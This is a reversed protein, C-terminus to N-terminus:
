KSMLLIEPKKAKSPTNANSAANAMAAEKAALRSRKDLQILSRTALIAQPVIDHVARAYLCRVAFAASDRVEQPNLPALLCHGLIRLVIQLLEWPLPIRVGRSVGDESSFDDRIKLKSIHEVTGNVENSEDDESDREFSNGNEGFCINGNENLNGFENSDNDFEHRCSCDKGSWDASFQCLELKSWSPMQSIQKYYCDLAVSVICARKTSKVAIQPELPACLVGVSSVGGDNVGRNVTGNSKNSNRPTSDYLSPQSLDPISILCPKGARAKTEAAYISLLVAEFGSLSSQNNHTSSALSIIRSLYFGSLLPIFSLVVLRLDPDSSQYTEYLWQCLSDNGSGSNPNSLLNSITLYSESSELLSRAPRDSDALSSIFSSSTTSSASIISSLIHIRTRAKSISEWWSQMQNPNNPNNQNKYSSSNPDSTTSSSPSASSSPSKTGGIQSSSSNM